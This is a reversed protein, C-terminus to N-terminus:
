ANEAPMWVKQGLIAEPYIAIVPRQALYWASSGRPGDTLWRRVAEVTDEGRRVNISRGLVDVRRGDYGDDDPHCGFRSPGFDRRGHVGKSPFSVTPLRGLSVGCM